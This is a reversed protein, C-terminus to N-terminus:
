TDLCLVYIEAYPLAKKIYQLSPYAMLSAGMEFLEIVLVKKITQDESDKPVLQFVLLYVSSHASTDTSFHDLVRITWRHGM